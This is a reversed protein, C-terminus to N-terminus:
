VFRLNFDWTSYLDVRKTLFDNKRQRQGDVKTSNAIVLEDVIM